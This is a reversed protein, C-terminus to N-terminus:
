LDLVPAWLPRPILAEVHKFRARIGLADYLANHPQYISPNEIGSMLEGLHVDPVNFMDWLYKVDRTYMPMGRPLDIMAGFLWCLVVHDYAGYWTYLRIEYEDPQLYELFARAIGEAEAFLDHIHDEGRVLDTSGLHPLVNDKVWQNARERRAEINVAYFPIGEEDVAGLSLLEIDGSGLPDHPIEMFETDMFIRRVPKSM